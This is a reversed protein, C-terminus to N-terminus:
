YNNWLIRLLKAGRPTNYTREGAHRQEVAEVFMAGFTSLAEKDLGGETFLELAEDLPDSFTTVPFFGHPVCVENYLRIVALAEASYGCRALPFNRWRGKM